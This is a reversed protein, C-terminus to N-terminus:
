PRILLFYLWYVAINIITLPVGIKVFEWMGITKGSKKEANQIIIVNSAAGLISLNGAITSGAALMMLETTKAGGQTLLPLYLAVLPVNSILQSLLTSVSFIAGASTVNLKTNAIAAQFFGSDWVSQMLVFMAAFFVLTYWDMNKVIELRRSSFLVVPLAAILAIYTLRFDIHANLFVTTIKALMLIVLLILSIRSIMAMKRDKIPEPSSTVPKGM